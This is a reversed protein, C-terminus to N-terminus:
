YLNPRKIFYEMTPPSDGLRRLKADDASVCRVFVSPDYFGYRDWSGKYIVGDRRWEAILKQRAQECESRSAFEGRSIFHLPGMTPGRQLRIAVQPNSVVKRNPTMLYWLQAHAPTVLLMTLTVTVLVAAARMGPYRFTSDARTM